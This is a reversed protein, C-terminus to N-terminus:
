AFEALFALLAARDIPTIPYNTAGNGFIAHEVTLTANVTGVELTIEPEHIPQKFRAAAKLTVPNVLVVHDFQTTEDATPPGDTASGVAWRKIRIAATKKDAGAALEITYYAGDQTLSHIHRDAM